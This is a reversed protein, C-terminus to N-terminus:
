LCYHQMYQLVHALKNSRYKEHLMFMFPTSTLIGIPNRAGVPYNELKRFNVSCAIFNSLKTINLCKKSVLEPIHILKPNHFEITAAVIEIAM